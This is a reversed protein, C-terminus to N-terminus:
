GGALIDTAKHDAPVGPVLVVTSRSNATRLPLIARYGPSAYWRQARAMDPFELVVIDGQPAGELVQYPGGHVLFRGGFPGITADIRQLYEVIAPGMNVQELYAVAYASM